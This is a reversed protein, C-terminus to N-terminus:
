RGRERWRVKPREVVFPGKTGHVMDTINAYHLMTGENRWTALDDTSACAVGGQAHGPGDEHSHEGYWYYVGSSGAGADHNGNLDAAGDGRVGFSWAQHRGSPLVGDRATAHDM